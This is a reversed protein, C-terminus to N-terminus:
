EQVWGKHKDLTILTLNDKSASALLREDFGSKSVLVYRVPDIGASECKKKLKELDSLTM